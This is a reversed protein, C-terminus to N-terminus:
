GVCFENGEPEHMAVYYIPDQPDDHRTRREARAGLGTPQAARSIRAM